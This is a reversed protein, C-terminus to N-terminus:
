ASGARRLRAIARRNGTSEAAVRRAYEHELERLQVLSYQVSKGDIQLRTIGGNAVVTAIADRISQLLTSNDV